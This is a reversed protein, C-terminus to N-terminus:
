ILLLPIVLFVIFYLAKSVILDYLLFNYNLRSSLAVNRKKYNALQRFDKTTAWSLTMIGYFFWAYIYQFRHIKKLPRHPNFRLISIPSIDEDYGNINTFGHHLSNHQERWTTPFGGLLYLTKALFNNTKSNKSFSGHNADHMVVMGVGAMAVGMIIWCIFMGPISQIVGTLMMVYPAFYLILMFITKIVLNANGYKSINNKDFYDKVQSRLEQMFEARNQNNFSVKKLSM